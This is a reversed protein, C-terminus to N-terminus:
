SGSAAGVWAMLPRLLLWGGWRLVAREWAPVPPATIVGGMGPNYLLHFYVWRRAAPGLQSDFERCLREVEQGEPGPPFLPPLVERQNEQAQGQGGAAAAAAAIAAQTDVWRLIPTSEDVCGAAGAGGSGSGPPLRLVPVSGRGGAAKAAARHFGPAHPEESFPVSYRELGWRAKECYHSLPITFLTPPAQTGAMILAKRAQLHWSLLFRPGCQACPLAIPGNATGRLLRLLVDPKKGQPGSTACKGHKGGLPVRQIM